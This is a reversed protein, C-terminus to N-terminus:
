VTSLCTVTSRVAGCIVLARILSEVPRFAAPQSFTSSVTVSTTSNSPATVTVPEGCSSRFTPPVM